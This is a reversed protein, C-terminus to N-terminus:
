GLFDYNKLANEYDIKAEQARAALWNAVVRREDEPLSECIVRVTIRFNHEAQMLAGQTSHCRECAAARGPCMMRAMRQRGSRM